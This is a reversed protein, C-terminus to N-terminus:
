TYASNADKASISISNILVRLETNEVQNQRNQTWSAPDVVINNCTIDIYDSGATRVCQAQLSFPTGDALALLDDDVYRRKITASIGDRMSGWYPRRIMMSNFEGTISLANDFNIDVSALGKVSSGSTYTGNSSDILIDTNYSGYPDLTDETPATVTSGASQGVFNATFKAVDGEPLSLSLTKATCGLISKATDSSKKYLAEITFSPLYSDTGGPDGRLISVAHTYPAGGGSSSIKGLTAYLPWVNQLQGTVDVEYQYRVEKHGQGVGVRGDRYGGLPILKPVRRYNAEDVIGVWRTTGGGNRSGFTSEQRAGVWGLNFLDTGEFAM